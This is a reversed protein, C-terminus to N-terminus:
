ATCSRRAPWARRSRGSATGPRADRRPARGPAPRCRRGRQRAQRAEAEDLGVQCDSLTWRRCRRPRLAARRSGRLADVVVRRRAVERRDLARAVEAHVQAEARHRDAAHRARRPCRMASAAPERAAGLDPERLQDPAVEVLLDQVVMRVDDARAELGLVVADSRARCARRRPVEGGPALAAGAIRQDIRRHRLDVLGAVHVVPQAHHRRAEEDLVEADVPAAALRVERQVQDVVLEGRVVAAPLPRRRGAAVRLGPEADEVRHRLALAEVRSPLNM